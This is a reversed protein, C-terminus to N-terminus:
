AFYKKVMALVTLAMSKEWVEGDRFMLSIDERLSKDLVTNEIVSDYFETLYKQVAKDKYYWYDVPNMIDRNNIHLVSCIGQWLLRQTTKMKRVFILSEKPKIGGWKEWGFETAEPYKEKMWKLYIHHYNRYEFPVSFITDLFDVDMFPSATEVFHQRIIYSSEAGLMGRTYIAFMEQCPYEKLIEEDFQYKLRGSYANMGFVPKGYSFEKDHYFTGIASGGILGTHEIGFQETRLMSLMRRGGTIGMYLAAGNNQSTTKELDYMWQIDDLPKFVYEHGLYLAIQKSIAEDRYGAQCYTVNVQDTYGMDHAVWSVMRSDLGGSLDVLHRYGYERDKEFERRIAERFSADIREVADKETMAIETNKIFHYRTIVAQGDKVQLYKGPLLRHIQKVFTSDDIMYAYTLMYKAAMPNFDFSIGNKNLVEVMYDMHDSLIWRDGDIYYYLAKVAIQDVYAVLMGEQKNFFYGCFGGRLRKLTEMTDEQLADTFAEPWSKSTEEMYDKKNHVYGNLFSVKQNDELFIQDEPFKNLLNNYQKCEGMDCIKGLCGIELNKAALFGHM